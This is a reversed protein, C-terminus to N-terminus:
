ARTLFDGYNEVVEDAEARMSAWEEPEAAGRVAAARFGAAKANRLAALRGTFVITDRKESRLRRLAKELMQASDAACGTEDATLVGRFYEEAGSERLAREADERPLATVAYLWVGEMKLLSLVRDADGRGVITDEISFIASQLRM